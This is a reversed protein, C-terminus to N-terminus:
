KVEIYSYYIHKLSLNYQQFYFLFFIMWRNIIQLFLTFVWGCVCVCLFNSSFQSWIPFLKFGLRLRGNISYYKRRKQSDTRSIKFWFNSKDYERELVHFKRNFPSQIVAHIGNTMGNQWWRRYFGALLTNIM